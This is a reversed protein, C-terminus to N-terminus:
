TIWRVAAEYTNSPTSSFAIAADPAHRRILNILQEFLGLLDDAHRLGGGVVVCEWPHARLAQEAVAPVDESGDVGVLCTEVGVGHEAFKALGAEIGKAIPEPDWLGPTRHPDLGIVLVRPIPASQM